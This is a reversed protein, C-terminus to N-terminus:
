KNTIGKTKQNMFFKDVSLTIGFQISYIIDDYRINLYDRGYYTSIFYGVSYHNTPALEYTAKFNLRYKKNSNILNPTFNNLNGIIYDSSVRIHHEFGKFFTRKTRFDYLFQLRNRGYSNEQEASYAFVSTETGMDFRYGISFQHLSGLHKNFYGKTLIFSFYNTSFDGSLYDNRFNNANDPDVFFFGPAQGNSYHKLQLRSTIFKLLNKNEDDYNHSWINYMAFGIHHSGPTLPKSDDLTMRFNGTYELAILKKNTPKGFFLPFSLNIFAELLQVNTTGEGQRTDIRRDGISSIFPAASLYSVERNAAWFDRIDSITEGNEQASLTFTFLSFIFAIKLTTFKM